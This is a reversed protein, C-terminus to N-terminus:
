APLINADKWALHRLTLFTRTVQFFGPDALPQHSLTLRLTPNVGATKLRLGKCAQTRLHGLHSDAFLCAEAGHLAQPWFSLPLMSIKQATPARSLRFKAWKAELSDFRLRLRRNRLMKCYSMSGGSNSGGLDRAAFHCAFGLSRLAKRNSTALAWTFTKKPDAEMMWMDLFAENAFHAGAVDEVTAGLLSLNDVFSFASIKPCFFGMDIRWVYNLQVMGYVSMADGEPLGALSTTAPSLHDHVSFARTCRTLFDQWLRTVSPPAGLHDALFFTHQRPIRNFAKILDTSLGVLEIFSQLTWWLQTAEKSPLFGFMSDPAHSSLLRLLQRSRISGWTRYVLSFIVIPRFGNPDHAGAEKALCLVIGHIM